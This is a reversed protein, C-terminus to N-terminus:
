LYSTRLRVFIRKLLPGADLLSLLAPCRYAGKQRVTLLLNILDDPDPYPYPYPDPYPYPHPDPILCWREMWVIASPISM